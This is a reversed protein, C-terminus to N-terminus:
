GAEDMKESVRKKVDELVKYLYEVSSFPFSRGPPAENPVWAITM